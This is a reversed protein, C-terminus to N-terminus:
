PKSSQPISFVRIVLQVVAVLYLDRLRVKKIRGALLPLEVKFWSWFIICIIFRLLFCPRLTLCKILSADPSESRNQCSKLSTGFLTRISKSSNRYSLPSVSLKSSLSMVGPQGFIKFVQVGGAISKQHTELLNFSFATHCLQHRACARLLQECCIPM